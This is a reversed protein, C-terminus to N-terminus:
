GLIARRIQVLREAVMVFLRYIPSLRADEDAPHPIPLEIMVVGSERGEVRAGERQLLDLMATNEALVECRFRAVGRERAAEILRALLASGLGQRQMDDIVAVAPEAVGEETPLSVFRAVGLGEEGDPGARLAGMAFHREQDVETLYRLETDSLHDKATFFRLYRAEPSMRGIGRVLLVKDEPRVLRLTVTSGDRLTLEERYEPGFQM